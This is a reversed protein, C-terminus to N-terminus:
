AGLAKSSCGCAGKVAEKGLPLKANECVDLVEAFLSAQTGHDGSIEMNRKMRVKSHIPVLM